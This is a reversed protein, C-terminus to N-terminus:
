LKGRGGIPRNRMIVWKSVGGGGRQTIVLHIDGKSFIRGFFLKTPNKSWGLFSKQVQPCVSGWWVEHCVWHSVWHLSNELRKALSTLRQLDRRGRIRKTANNPKVRDVRPVPQPEIRAQRVGIKRHSCVSPETQWKNAYEIESPIVM